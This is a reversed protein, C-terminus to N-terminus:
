ITEQLQIYIKNLKSYFEDLGGDNMIVYDYFSHKDNSLKEETAEVLTTESIHNAQRDIRPNYIRMKILNVDKDCFYSYENFFRWDDVLIISKKPLILIRKYLKEVWINPNYERGAETGLVQLLRRGRNDKVGDLGFWMKALAKIPSSLSLIRAPPTGFKDELWKAATTKGSGMYGSILIITYTNM